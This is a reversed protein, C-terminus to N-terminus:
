DIRIFGRPFYSMTPPEEYFMSWKDGWLSFAKERATARDPATIVAVSDKDLTGNANAHAHDQGFTIYFDKM